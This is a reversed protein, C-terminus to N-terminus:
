DSRFQITNTLTNPNVKIRKIELIEYLNINNMDIQVKLIEFNVLRVDM